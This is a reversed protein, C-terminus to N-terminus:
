CYFKQSKLADVFFLALTCRIWDCKLVSRVVELCEKLKFFNSSSVQNFEKNQQNQLYDNTKQYIILQLFM